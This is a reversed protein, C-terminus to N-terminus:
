NIIHLFIWELKNKNIKYIKTTNKVTIKMMSQQQKQKEGKGLM